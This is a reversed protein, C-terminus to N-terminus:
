RKGRRPYETDDEDQGESSALVGLEKARLDELLEIRLDGRQHVLQRTEIVLVFRDDAPEESV